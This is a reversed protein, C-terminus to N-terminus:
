RSLGRAFSLLTTRDKNRTMIGPIKENINEGMDEEASHREDGFIPCEQVRESEALDCLCAPRKKYLFRNVYESVGGHGKMVLVLVSDM